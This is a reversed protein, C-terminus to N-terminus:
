MGCSSFGSYGLAWARCYSFGICHSAWAGCHVTVGSAAVLSFGACCCLGLYLFLFEAYLFCCDLFFFLLVEHDPPTGIRMNLTLITNVNELFLILRHFQSPLLCSPWPDGFPPFLRFTNSM